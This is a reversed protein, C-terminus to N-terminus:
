LQFEFEGPLRFCTSNAYTRFLRTMKNCKFCTVFLTIYVRAQKCEKERLIAGPMGVYMCPSCPIRWFSLMTTLLGVSRVGRMIRVHNYELNSIVKLSYEGLYNKVRVAGNVYVCFITLGRGWSCLIDMKTSSRRENELYKLM